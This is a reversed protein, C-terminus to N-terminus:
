KQKGFFRKIRSWLSYTKKRDTKIRKIRKMEKKGCEEIKDFSDKHRELFFRQSKQFGSDSLGSDGRVNTRM